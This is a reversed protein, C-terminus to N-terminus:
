IATVEAWYGDGGADLAVRGLLDSWYREGGYEERWGLLATTVRHLRHERTFGIAGHLQQAISVAEGAASGTRIRAAALAHMPDCPALIADAAIDAAAAAAATESGLRALAHQVAQFKSLARGFQEREGVHDVTMALVRELAGAIQLTRLAAGIAFLGHGARPKVAGAALVADIRLTDRPMGGLNTAQRTVTWGSDLRLRWAEGDADVDIALTKADRGWPIRPADGALRWGEGERTLVLGAGAILTAVGEAPPLGAGALAHNAAITEALPVPLAHRGALRVLELAAVPALGAGGAAEDVWALPLGMEALASWGGAPWDGAAAAAMTADDFSDAFMRDATEILLASDDM